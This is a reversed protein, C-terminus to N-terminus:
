GIWKSLFRDIKNSSYKHKQCIVYGHNDIAFICDVFSEGTSLGINGDYLNNQIADIGNPNNTIQRGEIYIYGDNKVCIHEELDTGNGLVWDLEEDSKHVDFRFTYEKSGKFVLKYHTVMNTKQSLEVAVDM